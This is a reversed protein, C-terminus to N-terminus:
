ENLLDTGPYALHLLPHLPYLLSCVSPSLSLWLEPSMLGRAEAAERAEGSLPRKVEQLGRGRARGKRERM